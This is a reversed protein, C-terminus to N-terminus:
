IKEFFINIGFSLPKNPNVPFLSSTFYLQDFILIIKALEERSERLGFLGYYETLYKDKLDNKINIRKKKKGCFIELIILDLVIYSAM